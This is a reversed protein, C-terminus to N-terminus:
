KRFEYTFWISQKISTRVIDHRHFTSLHITMHVSTKFDMLVILFLPEWKITPVNQKIRLKRHLAKYIMTEKPM